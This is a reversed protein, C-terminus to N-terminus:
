CCEGEWAPKGAKWSFCDPHNKSYPIFHRTLPFYKEAFQKALEEKRSLHKDFLENLKVDCEHTDMYLTLDDLYFGEMMIEHLLKEPGSSDKSLSCDHYLEETAFFPMNLEPFVTGECLAKKLDYLNNLDAQQKEIHAIALTKKNDM